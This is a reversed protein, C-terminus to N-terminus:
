KPTRHSHASHSSNHTKFNCSRIRFRGSKKQEQVQDSPVGLSSQSTHLHRMTTATRTLDSRTTTISWSCASCGRPLKKMQSAPLGRRQTADCSPCRCTISQVLSTTVTYASKKTMATYNRGTIDYSVMQTRIHASSNQMKSRNKM